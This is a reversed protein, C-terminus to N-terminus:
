RGFVHEFVSKKTLSALATGINIMAAAIRHLAETQQLQADARKTQARALEQIAQVCRETQEETM